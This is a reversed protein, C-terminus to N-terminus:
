PYFLDFPIHYCLSQRKCKKGLNSVFNGKILPLYIKAQSYIQGKMLNGKQTISLNGLLAIFNWNNFHFFVSNM